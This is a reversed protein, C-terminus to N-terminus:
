QTVDRWINHVNRRRGLAMKIDGPKAQFPSAVDIHLLWKREVGLVGVSEYRERVLLPELQGCSMVALEAVRHSAHSRKDSAAVQAPRRDVHFTVKTILESVCRIRSGKEGVLLM